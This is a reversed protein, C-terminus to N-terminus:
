PNVTLTVSKATGNASARITASSVAAVDATALTFTGSSSGAPVALTSVSPSALSPSSSSIGVAVGGSPAACELTVTGTVSAPGTVPNPTLALSLVGVPRVSLSASKSVGGYSATVTGTQVATVAPATVPFTASTAGAAVTVSAPVVAVPHTSSLPVVLGGTPAKATLTVKGTSTQCGGVFSTPTFTLASVAPERVTLPAGKTV